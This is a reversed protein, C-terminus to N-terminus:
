EGHQRRRRAGGDTQRLIPIRLEGTIEDILIELTAFRTRCEACERRRRTAGGSTRTDMVRAEGGCTPCLM